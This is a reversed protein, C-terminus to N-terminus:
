REANGRHYLNGREADDGHDSFGLMRNADADPFVNPTSGNSVLNPALPQAVVFYGTLRCTPPCTTDSLQNFPVGVFQYTTAQGLSAPANLLPLLTLIFLGMLSRKL